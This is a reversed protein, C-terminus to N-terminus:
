QTTIKAMRIPATIANPQNSLLTIHFGDRASFYGTQGETVRILQRLFYVNVTPELFPYSDAPYVNARGPLADYGYHLFLM